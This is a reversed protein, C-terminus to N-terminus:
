KSEYAYYKCNINVRVSAMANGARNSATCWYDGDQERSINKLLLVNVSESYKMDQKEPNSWTVNPPPKGTANCFLTVDDTENWTQTKSIGTINPRVLCHLLVLANLFHIKWLLFFHKCRSLIITQVLCKANM